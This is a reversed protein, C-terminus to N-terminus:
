MGEEKAEGMLSEVGEAEAAMGGRTWQESLLRGHFIPTL